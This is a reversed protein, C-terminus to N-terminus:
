LHGPAEFVIKKLVAGWLEPEFRNITKYIRNLEYADEFYVALSRTAESDAVGNTVTKDLEALCTEWPTGELAVYAAQSTVPIGIYTLTRLAELPTTIPGKEFAVAHLRNLDQLRVELEDQSSLYKLREASLKNNKPGATVRKRLAALPDFRSSMAYWNRRQLLAERQLAHGAEHVIVFRNAITAVSIEDTKPNYKGILTSGLKANRKPLMMHLVAPVSAKRYDAFFTYDERNGKQWEVVSALGSEVDFNPGYVSTLVEEYSISQTEIAKDGLAVCNEAYTEMREGLSNRGELCTLLSLSSTLILIIRILLSTQYKSSPFM